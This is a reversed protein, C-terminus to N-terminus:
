KLELLRAGCTELHPLSRHHRPDVREFGTQLIQLLDGHGVLVCVDGGGGGGGGEGLGDRGGGHGHGHREELSAVFRTARDQVSQVPEVGAATGAGTGAESAADATWVPEYQDDGGLNLAAGFSRERLAPTFEPPSVRARALGAVALSSFAAMATERTRRFDSAYIHVRRDALGGPVLSALKGALENAQAHGRPSLGHKFGSEADPECSIIGLVNAESEGHRVAVYVNRLAGDLNKLHNTHHTTTTATTTFCRRRVGCCARSFQLTREVRAAAAM